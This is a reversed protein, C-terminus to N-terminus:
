PIKHIILSRVKGSGRKRPLADMPDNISVKENRVKYQSMGRGSAAPSPTVM